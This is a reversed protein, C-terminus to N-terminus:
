CPRYLSALRISKAVCRIAERRKFGYGRDSDWLVGVTGNSVVVFFCLSHLRLAPVWAVMHPHIHSYIFPFSLPQRNAADGVIAYIPTFNKMYFWCSVAMLSAVPCGFQVQFELNNTKQLSQKWCIYFLLLVGVIMKFILLFILLVVKFGCKDLVLLSGTSHYLFCLCPAWVWRKIRKGFLHRNPNSISTDVRLLWCPFSLFKLWELKCGKNTKRKELKQKSLM